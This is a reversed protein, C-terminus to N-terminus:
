LERLSAAPKTRLLPLSAAAAFTIVLALGAALVALVRPWNPLFAFDFVQTLVLWGLATGLALAVAALILSLAAFEALILTALQANSAGLVRLLVTEYTRRARAAAIAGALVALGALVTVSAAALIALSIQQLLTRADRLIPGTEVVSVLPFDKVFLQLLRTQTQPTHPGLQLSAALNYPAGRLAAPNFVLVNNFGFSGWGIRRLSTITATREVGLLGITLTDGPHLHLTQALKEDVSVQPTPDNPSWWTGATLVNGEPLTDSFTIGREGKLAWAAPPLQALDATRTQNQAPGWALIAARLMPIARIKATPAIAHIKSTFPALSEPPLDIAFYDPAKAPIREDINAALSTEIVALLVFASLGFGLATVLRVTQAGPRHLNALALAAIPNKPPKTRAALVRIALGILTLTAFLSAAGGLFLATTKPPANNAFTLATLITLGLAMPPALTKLPAPTPTLQAHLLAMAPWRSASALAPTAFTLATALGFAFAKALALPSAFALALPTSPLPLVGNLAEAILPVAAAGTLIGALSAITAAAAIQLRTIQAIDRGTAGLIKLAALTPRRSDLWSATGGAIGLGAILLAALGVLTLFDAMRAVFTGTWEAADSPTRIDLGANPFQAKLTAAIQAPNCTRACALRTKSRYMAGPSELGAKQPLDAPVIVTPGLAFGEGLRDPEDAILGAVTVPAGSLTIKSGTTVNLRDAASPTLWATNPAPAGVNQGNTLILHGILPWNADVAKLQVPVAPSQPSAQAMSQLRTGTSTPGYTQLAAQEQPTLHRQWVALEVDGGLIQRANTALATAIAAGLTGVAALAAVGLFLCLMLLRLGKFRTSLEARALRWLTAPPIPGQGAASAATM